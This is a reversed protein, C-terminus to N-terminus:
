LSAAMIANRENLPITKLPIPVLKSGMLVTAVENKVEQVFRRRGKITLFEFIYCTYEENDNM